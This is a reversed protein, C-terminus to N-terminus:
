TSVQNATKIEIELFFSVRAKKQENEFFFLSQLAPTYIHPQIRMHHTLMYICTYVFGHNVSTVYSSPKFKKTKPMRSMLQQMYREEPSVNRNPTDKKHRSAQKKTVRDATAPPEFFNLASKEGGQILRGSVLVEKHQNM